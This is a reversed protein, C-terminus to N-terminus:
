PLYQCWHHTQYGNSIDLQKWNSINWYENGMKSGSSTIGALCSSWSSFRCFHFRTALWGSHHVLPMEGVQKSNTKQKSKHWNCSNKSYFKKCRSVGPQVLNRSRYNGICVSKLSPFCCYWLVSIFSIIFCPINSVGGGWVVPSFGNKQIPFFFLVQLGILLLEYDTQQFLSVAAKLKGISPSLIKRYLTFMNVLTTELSIITCKPDLSLGRIKHEFDPCIM